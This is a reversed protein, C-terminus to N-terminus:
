GVELERNLIDEINDFDWYPIRILRINHEKCYHTKINDRMQTSKLTEEGGFYEVSKYHLSGDYEICTNNNPLYFDFPLTFINKCDDFRKQIEYPINNSKLYKEVAMEGKSSNCKPCGVGQCLANPVIEWIYDDKKCKCLIKTCANKYKGLIEINPNIQKM